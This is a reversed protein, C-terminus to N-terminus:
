GNSKVFYLTFKSMAFSVNFLKCLTNMGLWSFPLVRWCPWVGCLGPNTCQSPRLSCWCHATDFKAFSLPTTCGKSKCVGAGEGLKVRCCMYPVCIEATSDWHRCLCICRPWFSNTKAINQSLWFWNGSVALWIFCCFCADMKKESFCMFAGM